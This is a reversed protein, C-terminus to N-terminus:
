ISLNPFWENRWLRHYKKDEELCLLVFIVALLELLFIIQKENYENWKIEFKKLMWFYPLIKSKEKKNQKCVYMYLVKIVYVWNGEKWDRGEWHM